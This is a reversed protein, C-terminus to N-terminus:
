LGAVVRRVARLVQLEVDQVPLSADITELVETPFYVAAYDRYLPRHKVLQGLEEHESLSERTAKLRSYAASPELDFLLVLDPTPVFQHLLIMLAPCYTPNGQYVLTSLFSRNSLVIRGGTLAPEVEERILARRTALLLFMLEEPTTKRPDDLEAYAAKLSQYQATPERVVVNPIGMTEMRTALREIQTDKGSGSIGEFLLYKGLHPPRLVHEVELTELFFRVFQMQERAYERSEPFELGQIRQPMKDRLRQDIGRMGEGTEGAWMSIRLIGIPGFGALFDADKLIRGEVSTPRVNPQDHQGIAEVVRAIKDVQICTQGLIVQAQIVSQRISEVGRKRPDDRGLDHLRAAALLVEADGGHTAQLQLAFRLVLDTHAKNHSPSLARQGLLGLIERDLKGLQGPSM